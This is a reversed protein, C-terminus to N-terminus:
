RPRMDAGPHTSLTATVRYCICLLMIQETTTGISKGVPIVFIEFRSLSPCVRAIAKRHNELYTKM